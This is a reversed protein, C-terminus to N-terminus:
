DVSTRQRFASITRRRAKLFSIRPAQRSAFAFGTPRADTRACRSDCRPGDRPAAGYGSWPRRRLLSVNQAIAASAVSACSERGVPVPHMRAHDAVYVLDMPAEVVVDQCRTVRRSDSAAVLHLQHAVADYRYAGSPLAVFADIEQPPPLAVAPASDGTAPKPRLPGIAGLAPKTLAPM